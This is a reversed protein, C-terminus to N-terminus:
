APLPYVIRNHGPLIDALADQRRGHVGNGLTAHGSEAHFVHAPADAHTRAVDQVVVARLLLQEQLGKAPAFVAEGLLPRTFQRRERRRKLPEFAEDRDVQGGARMLGIPEQPQLYPGKRGLVRLSGFHGTRLLLAPGIVQSGDDLVAMSASLECRGIRTAKCLLEEGHESSEAQMYQVVTGHEVALPHHFDGHLECTESEPNGRGTDFQRCGCLMTPSDGPAGGGEAPRVPSCGERRRFRFRDVAGRLDRPSAFSGVRLVRQTLISLWMEIQNLRLYGQAHEPAQICPKEDVSILLANEPRALYLGVIDAAKAALEPDTSLCWNRRRQLHIGHRSLVRWIHEESVDGLTKALLRPTWM